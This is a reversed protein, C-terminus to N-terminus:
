QTLLILYLNLRDLILSVQEVVVVVGLLALIALLVEEVVVVLQLYPSLHRVGQFVLPLVLLSLIFEGLKAQVTTTLFLRSQEVRLM